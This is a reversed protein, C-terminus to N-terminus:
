KLKGDQKYFYDIYFSQSHGVILVEREPVYVFNFNPAVFNNQSDTFDSSRHLRYETLNYSPQGGSLAWSGGDVIQILAEGKKMDLCDQPKFISGIVLSKNDIHTMALPQVWDLFNLKHTAIKTLDISNLVNLKKEHDIAFVYKGDTSFCALWCILLRM